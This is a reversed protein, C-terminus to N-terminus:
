VIEALEDELSSQISWIRQYLGPQRILDKHIGSQTIRGDELVYILDAEALTTIRHSIILTTTDRSREKLARRIAADTELDVASLSDDFILIPVNRIVTRAIALRQRQGGSLTTGREGVITDYGNEFSEVTEHICAIDSAEMIESKHAGPKGFRINEEISKSFLHPEQLVIGVNQRLWKKDIEKLETGDLKISGKQYDYLRVLLHVLSSKGSGTPGLIAITSGKKINFSIDRLIPKGKEYEFDVNKFEIEGKIAPKLGDEETTEVPQDLIYQIRNLSVFSQGMFALLQGLQRMPWILMGSYTTFAVFTGLTIVGGSAWFVGILVVACYQILCIFDSSAWFNAMVRVIGYINNKYEKNKEDFKEIEYNQTAFAKVVRVGTLSEQLNSSLRGESEDAKQFTKKMDRFFFFTFCMIVPLLIISILTYKTNILLMIVLVYTFQLIVQGLEVLQSSVFNQVTEVDSTCRQILDGAQSNVHFDYPLHQLHDYIQERIRKGSNHAALASLKGKLFQFLGQGLTLAILVLGARWLNEKFLKIGGLSDLVNVAWGPLEIPADGIISDITTRVAIPIATSFLASLNIAIFAGLYTLINHRMFKLMLRLNKM